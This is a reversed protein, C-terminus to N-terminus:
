LSRTPVDPLIAGEAHGDGYVRLATVGGTGRFGLGSVALLCTVPNCANSEVASSIGLKKLRAKWSFPKPKPTLYPKNSIDLLPFRM